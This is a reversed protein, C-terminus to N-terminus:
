ELLQDLLSAFWVLNEVCILRSKKQLPFLHGLPNEDTFILVVEGKEERAVSSPIVM